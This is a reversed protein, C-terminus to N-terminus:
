NTGREGERGKLPGRCCHSGNRRVSEPVSLRRGDWEKGGGEAGVEGHHHVFGVRYTSGGGAHTPGTEPVPSSSYHSAEERALTPVPSRGFLVPHFSRVPGGQRRFYVPHGTKRKRGIPPPPMGVFGAAASLYRTLLPRRSAIM